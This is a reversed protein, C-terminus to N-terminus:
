SIGLKKNLEGSTELEQLEQFGGIMEEGLFIQPVTRWGTKDRLATLEDAKGTLNIEEFEVKKQRLLDM